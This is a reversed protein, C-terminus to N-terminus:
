KKWFNKVVIEDASIISNGSTLYDYDRTWKRVAERYKPKDIHTRILWSIHELVEGKKMIDNQIIFELIVHRKYDSLNETANVNYGYQKIIAETAWNSYKNNILNKADMVRCCIIGRSKLSNYTSEMVYYRQCTECYYANIQVQQLGISSVFIPVYAVMEKLKHDVEICNRNTTRIMVDKVQLRQILRKGTIKTYLEKDVSHVAYIELYDGVIIKIYAEEFNDNEADRQNEFGLSIEGDLYDSKYIIRGNKTERVFKILGSSIEDLLFHKIGDKLIMDKIQNSYKYRPRGYVLQTLKNYLIYGERYYRNKPSCYVIKGGATDSYGIVVNQMIICNKKDCMQMEISIDINDDEYQLTQLEICNGSEYVTLKTSFKWYKSPLKLFYDLIEGLFNNENYEFFPISKVTKGQKCVTNSKM